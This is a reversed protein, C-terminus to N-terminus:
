DKIGPVLIVPVKSHQAVKEAVSGLLFRNLGSKGVSGMVLLDTKSELSYRLLEDSPHGRLVIKSYPVGAAQAMQEIEETVYKGEELMLGLLKDKLGPIGTYGPLKILRSVDVVYVAVVQSGHTRALELGLKAAMYSPESGDTAIMIKKFMIGNVEQM